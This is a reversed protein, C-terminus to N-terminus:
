GSKLENPLFADIETDTFTMDEKTKLAVQARKYAWNNTSPASRYVRHLQTV